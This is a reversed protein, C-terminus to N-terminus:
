TAEPDSYISRYYHEAYQYYNEAAITNGIRSEAAALALYRDYNRQASQSNRPEPRGATPKRRKSRGAFLQAPKPQHARM